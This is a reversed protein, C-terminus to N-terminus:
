GHNVMLVDKVHEQLVRTVGKFCTAEFAGFYVFSEGCVSVCVSKTVDNSRSSSM